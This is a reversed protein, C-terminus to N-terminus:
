QEFIVPLRVTMAVPAGARRAPAFRWAQVARHAAADLVAHGSSSDITARAVAGSATIHLRLVVTGQWGRQQAEPPYTPPPNSLLQPPLTLSDGAQHAESPLSAVDNAPLQSRPTMPAAANAPTDQSPNETPDRRPQPRASPEINLQSPSPRPEDPLDIHTSENVFRQRAIQVREPTVIIPQDLMALPEPEFQPDPLPEPPM